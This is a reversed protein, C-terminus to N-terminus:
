LYSIMTFHFRGKGNEDKGSGDMTVETKGIKGKYHGSDDSFLYFNSKKGKLSQIRTAVIAQYQEGDSGEISLLDTNVALYGFRPIYFMKESMSLLPEGDSDPYVVSTIGRGKFKEEIAQVALKINENSRDISEDGSDANFIKPSKVCAVVSSNDLQVLEGSFVLARSWKFFGM